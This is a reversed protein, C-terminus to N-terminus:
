FLWRTATHPYDAETWTLATRPTVGYVVADLAALDPRVGYKEDYADLFVGFPGTEEVALGDLIVVEDGSELHVVVQPSLGLNRAKLSRRGTSFWLEGDLWLGWVPMAHPRGAPSVTTIWYNRAARLREEAWSWPLLEAGSADAPVGYGPDIRPAAPRPM